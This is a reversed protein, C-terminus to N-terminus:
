DKFDDIHIADLQSYPDDSDTEVEDDETIGLLDCLVQYRALRENLWQQDAESLPTEDELQDLLANFREDSELAALEAAPTAFRKRTPTPRKQKPDVVLRIPKKSGIRKDQSGSNRAVPKNDSEVNNRTGPANGSKRKQRTAHPDEKGGKIRSPRKHDPSKRTGILGVKRSKKVRPM